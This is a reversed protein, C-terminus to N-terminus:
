KTHIFKFTSSYGKEFMLRSLYVGPAFQEIQINEKTSYLSQSFVEQGNLNYIKVEKMASPSELHLQNESIYHSFNNQLIESVGLTPDKATINDVFGVAKGTTLFGYGTVESLNLNGTYVLEEDVYYLTEEEVFDLQITFRIFTDNPVDIEAGVSFDSLEIILVREDALAMSAGPLAETGAAGYVYFNIEGKPTETSTFYLDASLEYSDPSEPVEASIVRTAGAINGDPIIGAEDIGLRLAYDGDSAQEDSVTFIDSLISFTEWGNQGNIEGLEYGEEAEFSTDQAHHTHVLIFATFLLLAKKM